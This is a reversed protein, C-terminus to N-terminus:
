RVGLPRLPFDPWVRYVARRRRDPEEADALVLRRSQEITLWGKYLAGSVHVPVDNEPCVRAFLEMLRARAPELGGPHAINIEIMIPMPDDDAADIGMRAREDPDVLAESLTERVSPRM